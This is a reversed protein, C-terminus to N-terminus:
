ALLNIIGAIANKKPNGNAYANVRELFRQIEMASSDLTRKAAELQPDDGQFAKRQYDAQQAISIQRLEATKSSSQQLNLNSQATNVAGAAKNAANATALNSSSDILELNTLQANQPKSAAAATPNDGIGNNKLVQKLRQFEADYKARDYSNLTTDTEVTHALEAMRTLIDQAREYINSSRTLNDPAPDQDADIGNITQV